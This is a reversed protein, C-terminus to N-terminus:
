HWQTEVEAATEQRLKGGIGELINKVEELMEQRESDSVSPVSYLNKYVIDQFGCFGLTGNVMCTMIADLIGNQRMNEENAGSTTIVVAKKGKLLGEVMGQDTQRYAFGHSFVRDIWGKLM